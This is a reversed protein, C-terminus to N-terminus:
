NNFFFKSFDFFDHSIKRVREMDDEKTEYILDVIANVEVAAFTYVGNRAFTSGHGSKFM